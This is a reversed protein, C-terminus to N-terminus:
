RKNVLNQMHLKLTSAKEGINLLSNHSLQLSLIHRLPLSFKRPNHLSHKAPSNTLLHNMQVTLPIPTNKVLRGKRSRPQVRGLKSPPIRTQGKPYLHLDVRKQYKMAAPLFTQYACPNIREDEGALILLVPGKLRAIDDADQTMGYYDICFDFDLNCAGILAFGGEM